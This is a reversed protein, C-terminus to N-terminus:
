AARWLAASRGSKTKATGAKIVLGAEVLEVRRPRETSGEMALADQLQEDTAPGWEQLHRLIRDRQTGRNPMNAMAADVSEPSDAQCKIPPQPPITNGLYPNPGVNTVRRAPHQDIFLDLQDGM